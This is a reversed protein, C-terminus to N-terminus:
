GGISVPQAMYQPVPVSYNHLITPAIDVTSIQPRHGSQHPNPRDADYVLLTGQPIHYACTGSKDQIEMHQLGLDDPGMTRGKFQIADTRHHLNPHGFDVSFFGGAARRFSVPRGDITLAQLASEFQEEKAPRVLVSWQPLMAPRQEWDSPDLGLAATLKAPDTLYLQTELANAETAAQGMSTTVWLTYQRNREVFAALRAFFSDFKEMAFEIENRYTAIWQEDYGLQEYDAPFAAAWYRHQTAAVHNTFFTAFQPRFKDLQRMFLDFGLVAQYTRRRCKRWSQLREEVLQGGINAYTRLRLGLDSSKRLMALADRWAIGSSVNRASERAMALNFKQFLELEPPFSETGAAFTDPLFFAYNEFNKPPPYTHLSGCIGPKVGNKALIDWVPPFEKNQESLDQGFDTIMHRENTVGRHVTPWTKWPSLHGIDEAYTEYQYCHPLYRALASEPRWICYQDIIRLPVENLEFLIIRKDM